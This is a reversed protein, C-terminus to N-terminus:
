NENNKEEKDVIDSIAADLQQSFDAPYWHDSGSLIYRYPFKADRLRKVMEMKGKDSKDQERLIITGRLGRQRAKTLTESNLGAPIDGGPQCVIFGAAPIVNNVAIDMAAMGGQSFGGIIVKGPDIPYKGTIKKFVEKIDKKALIADDWGFKQSSVVQSSQSLVLIFEKDIKESHWRKNIDQLSENWGHLVLLLPYKATSSFGAPTVVEFAPEAEATLAAKLRNNEEIIKKFRDYKELPQWYSSGPFFPYIAKRKLGYEFIDLCKEYEGKYMYLRALVSTIDFLKGPFQTLAKEYLSIVKEYKKEKYLGAVKKSFKEFNMKEEKDVGATGALLILNVLIILLTKRM